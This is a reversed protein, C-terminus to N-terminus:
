ATAHLRENMPIFQFHDRITMRVVLTKFKRLARLIQPWLNWLDTPVRINLHSPPRSRNAASEMPKKQPNQAEKHGAFGQSAYLRRFADQQGCFSV